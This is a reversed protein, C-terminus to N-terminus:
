RTPSPNLASSASATSVGAPPAVPVARSGPPKTLMALLAGLVLM